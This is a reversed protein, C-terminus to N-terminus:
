ACVASHAKEGPCDAIAPQELFVAGGVLLSYISAILVGAAAVDKAIKALPHYRDTILNVVVELATNFLEAILVLAVASLLFLM